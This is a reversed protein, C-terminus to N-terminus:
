EAPSNSDGTKKSLVPADPNGPTDTIGVSTYRLLVDEMFKIDEINVINDKNVDPLYDPKGKGNIYDVIATLDVINVKGDNNVDYLIRQKAQADQPVLLTAFITILLTFLSRTKIMKIM